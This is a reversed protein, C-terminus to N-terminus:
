DPTSYHCAPLNEPSIKRSSLLITQQANKLHNRFLRSWFTEPRFFLLYCVTLSTHSNANHLSVVAWLLIKGFVQETKTM